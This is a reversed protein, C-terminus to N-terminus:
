QGPVKRPEVQRANRFMRKMGLSQFIAFDLVLLAIITVIWEGASSLPLLDNILATASGFVWVVDLLIAISGSVILATRKNETLRSSTLLLFASFILLSIGQSLIQDSGAEGLGMTVAVSQAFLLCIVASIASFLGNFQMSKRLLTTNSIVEAM